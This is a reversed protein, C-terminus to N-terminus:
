QEADALPRHQAGHPHARDYADRLRAISVHTYVETTVLRKHGLLEQLTRLDAGRDLLHTAFSHRLGHPTLRQRLGARRAHRVVVEFIWRSSLPGGLRNLFLAQRHPAQRATLLERRRALYTHVAAVAQGGLLALREKRGKGRVRAIGEELDVARLELGAAEAVRCGTSYLVELIARDRAGQFSDDFPQDLLHQVEEVTLFQPVQRRHKPGRVLRAPDERSGRHERRFRFLARLAALKRRVSAPALGREHLHALYRRLTLRDTRTEQELPEAGRADEDPAAQHPLWALFARLDSDYARVTAPSAGRVHALHHVFARLDDALAATEAM